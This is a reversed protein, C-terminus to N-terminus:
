GPDAVIINPADSIEILRSTATRENRKCNTIKMQTLWPPVCPQSSTGPYPFSGLATENPCLSDVPQLFQVSSSEAQRNGSLPISSGIAELDFNAGPTENSYPSPDAFNTPDESFEFPYAFDHDSIDTL